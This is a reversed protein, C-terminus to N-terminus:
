SLKRMIYTFGECQIGGSSSWGRLYCAGCDTFCMKEHKKVPRAFEWRKQQVLGWVIEDYQEYERGYAEYGTAINWAIIGGPKTIRLLETFGLPSILGQFFGACCLLADYSDNQITTPKDPDIFEKYVKRFIGKAMAGNLYGQSPDLGDVNEYGAARIEEGVVGTGCAVDLVEIGTDLGLAIFQEALSEAEIQQQLISGSM